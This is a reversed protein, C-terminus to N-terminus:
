NVYKKPRRGGGEIVGFRRRLRRARALDRANALFTRIEALGGPGAGFYGVALAAALGALAPWNGQAVSAAVMWGVMILMLYRAQLFIPIPWFQVQQRGYMRAFAVFLTTVAYTNGDDFSSPGYGRLAYAGAIALNALAGGGVFLLATRRSGRAQEIFLGIFWLGIMGLLFGLFDLHVFLSTVPQWVEGAFFRPGLALHTAMFGRSERVVAFFLYILTTGIMLARVTATLRATIPGM